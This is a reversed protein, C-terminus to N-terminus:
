LVFFITIAVPEAAAERGPTFNIFFIIEDVAASEKLETGFDKTTM